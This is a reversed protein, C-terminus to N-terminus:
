QNLDNTRTIRNIIFTTWGKAHICLKVAENNLLYSGPILVIFVFTDFLLFLRDTWDSDQNIQMMWYRSLNIIGAFFELLWSIVTIQIGITNRRHRKRISEESLCALVREKSESRCFWIGISLCKPILIYKIKHQIENLLYSIFVKYRFIFIASKIYIIGETINSFLMTCAVIYIVYLGNMAWAPLFSYTLKYLPFKYVENEKGSIMVNDNNTTSYCSLEYEGIESLWGNYKFTVVSQFWISM